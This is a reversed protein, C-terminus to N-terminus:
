WGSVHPRTMYDGLTIFLTFFWIFGAAAWFWTLKSQFKVGMFYLIVFTMKVTAIGMAIFMNLPGFNQFGAWVTIVLLAMLVAFTKWYV